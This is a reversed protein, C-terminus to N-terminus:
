RVGGAPASVAQASYVLTSVNLSHEQGRENWTVTLMLETLNPDRQGSQLSWRYNPFGMQAFTGGTGDTLYTQEVVLDALKAEALTAAEARHRSLSALMSATSAARMAFPIVIALIAVSALVEILTFGRLRRARYTGGLRRHNEHFRTKM